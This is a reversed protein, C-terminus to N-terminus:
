PRLEVPTLRATTLLALRIIPEKNAMKPAISESHVATKTEPAVGSKLLDFVSSVKCKLLFVGKIHTNATNRHGGKNQSRPTAM